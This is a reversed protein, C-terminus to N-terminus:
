VACAAHVGSGRVVGLAEVCAADLQHPVYRQLVDMADEHSIALHYPRNETIASYFDAVAIIRDELTLDDATLGRPYGSGDLREHHRSAM